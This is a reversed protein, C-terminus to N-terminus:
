NCPAQVIPSVSWIPGGRLYRILWYKGMMHDCMWATWEEGGPCIEPVVAREWSRQRGVLEM